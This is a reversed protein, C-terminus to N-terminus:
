TASQFSTEAPALLSMVAAAYQWFPLYTKNLTVDNHQKLDYNLKLNEGFEFSLEKLYDSMVFIKANREDM